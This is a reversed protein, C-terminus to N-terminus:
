LKKPVKEHVRTKCITTVVINYSKEAKVSYGGLPVNLVKHKGSDSNIVNRVQQIGCVLGIVHWFKCELM